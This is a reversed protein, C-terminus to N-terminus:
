IFPSKSEPIEETQWVRPVSGDFLNTLPQINEGDYIATFTSTDIPSLGNKQNYLSYDKTTVTEKESEPPLLNFEAMTGYGGVTETARLRVRLLSVNKDFEIYKYTKDATFELNDALLYFDDGSASDSGYVEGKLIDGTGGRPM